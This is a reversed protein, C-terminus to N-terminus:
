IGEQYSKNQRESIIYVAAALGLIAVLVLGVPGVADAIERVAAAFATVTGAFMTVLAGWNTTSKYLPKGTPRDQIPKVAQDGSTRPAAALATQFTRAYASIINAQDTGNVIRRAGKYNARHPDIYDGLKRGTFWGSICGQFLIRASIGGRLALDPHRYLDVGLETGARKYNAAWTLQVHGRGYYAQRTNLDTLGYKRGKGRGFERVPQMTRATEHYATALCYALWRPDCGAFDREWIDLLNTLGDVQAQSLRGRFLTQRIEGFFAQRAIPATSNSSSLGMRSESQMQM